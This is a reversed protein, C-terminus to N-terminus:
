EEKFNNVADMCHTNLKYHLNRKFDYAKSLHEADELVFRKVKSKM